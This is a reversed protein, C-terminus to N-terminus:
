KFSKLAEINLYSVVFFPGKSVEECEKLERLCSSAYSHEDTSTDKIGWNMDCVQLEFGREKCYTRLRPFAKSMMITREAGLDPLSPSFVDGHINLLLLTMM